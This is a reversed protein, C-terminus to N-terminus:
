WLIYYLMVMLFTDYLANCSQVICYLVNGALSIISLLYHFSIITSGTFKITLSIVSSNLKRSGAIVSTMSKRLAM